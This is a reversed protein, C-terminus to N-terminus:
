KKGMDSKALKDKYRRYISLGIFIIALSGFLFLFSVFDSGGGLDMSHIELDTIIVEMM